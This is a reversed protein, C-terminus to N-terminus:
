LKYLFSEDQFYTYILKDLQESTKVVEESLINFSNKEILKHLCERKEHIAKIYYEMTLGGLFDISCCKVHNNYMYYCFM